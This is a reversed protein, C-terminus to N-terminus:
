FEMKDESIAQVDSSSKEADVSTLEHRIEPSIQYHYHIKVIELLAERQKSTIDNKYRQAFALFSQQWLVPLHREDKRFRLIFVM